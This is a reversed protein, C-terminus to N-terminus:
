HPGESEPKSSSKQGTSSAAASGDAAVHPAWKLLFQKMKEVDYTAKSRLEIMHQSHLVRGDQDLVFLHPIGEVKPYQSLVKENKNESSYFVPVTIFSEDRLRRIEPNAQYFQDMQLCYLCWDGGVDILVRKGTKQAEVLAAQIDAAADRTPVFHLSTYPSESAGAASKKAAEPAAQAFSLCAFAVSAAIVFVTRTWFYRGFGECTTSICNSATM